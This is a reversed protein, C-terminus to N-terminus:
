YSRNKLLIAKTVEPFFTNTTIVWVWLAHYPFGSITCARHLSFVTRFQPEWFINRACCFIKALLSNVARGTLRANCDGPTEFCHLGQSLLDPTSGSIACKWLVGLPCQHCLVCKSHTLVGLGGLHEEM